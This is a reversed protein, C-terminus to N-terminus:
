GGKLHKVQEVSQLDLISKLWGSCGLRDILGYGELRPCILIYIYTNKGHTNSYLILLNIASTHFSNDRYTNYHLLFFFPTVFYLAKKGLFLVTTIM